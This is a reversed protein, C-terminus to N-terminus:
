SARLKMIKIAPARCKDRDQALHTWDVSGLGIEVVDKEINDVWM